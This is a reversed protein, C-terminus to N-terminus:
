RQANENSASHLKIAGMPQGTASGISERLTFLQQYLGVKIKIM